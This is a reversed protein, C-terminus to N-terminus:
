NKILKHQSLLKEGQKIVIIYIGSPYSAVNLLLNNSKFALQEARILRGTLDFVTLEVDSDYGSYQVSVEDNTPNPSLIVVADQNVKDFTVTPRMQTTDELCSPIFLMFDFLCVRGQEDTATILFDVAGGQYNGLPVITFTYTTVGQTITFAAPTIIMNPQASLVANLTQTSNIELQIVYSCFKNEERTIDRKEVEFRCKDCELETFTFPETTWDCGGNTMSFAYEGTGEIQFPLPVTDNGDSMILNNRIWAWYELYVRPGILTGQDEKCDRYCGEPFIWAYVEPHKPVDIQASSSCSGVQATVKYPGGFSVLIPNGTQGNSWQLHDAPISTTATLQYQYPDCSVLESEITLDYPSALVETTISVSKQCGNLEVTATITQIGLNLNSFLPTFQNNMQPQLIGNVQWSISPANSYATVLLPIGQCITAEAVLSLSPKPKFIPIIRNPTNYECNNESKVKVWYFGNNSVTISPTNAAGVIPEFGKMWIYETIACNDPQSPNPQYSVVISEGSCVSASQPQAVVTGFFCPEPVTFTTTLVQTCGFRNTITVTVTKPGPTEFVRSPNRLSSTAGDGFDWFFNDTQSFQFFDFGVATDHCDPNQTFFVSMTPMVALSVNISVSCAPQTVGYYDGQVVLTFTYNGGALNALTNGTILQNNSEPSGLPRYYYWVQRNDVLSYYNTEDIFTITFSSNGNCTAEYLLKPIYPVVVDLREEFKAPSLTADNQCEYTAWYFINYLGATAQFSANPYNSSNINPGIVKFGDQLPPQNTSGVLHIIGCDNYSTNTLIPSPAYECEAPLGCGQFISLQNSIASCGQANTVKVTYYGFGLSTYAILSNGNENPILNGNHYWEITLGSTSTSITFETNIENATCFTNEGSSISLGIPPQPYVTLEFLATNTVGGCGLPDTISATIFRTIPANNTNSIQFLQNIGGTISNNGNNWTVVANSPIAVGNISQVSLMVPTGSCVTAQGTIEIIPNPQITVTFTFQQLPLTCKQITLIVDVTTASAVNNWLVTSSNTGQGSSISGVIPNSITWYYTDGESYLDNSGIQYAFFNQYSNSCKITINNESRVEAPITILNISVTTAPSACEIPVISKKVVSISHPGTASFSVNIQTGTNSGLITGNQISWEYIYNGGPNTISYTYPANPCVIRDGIIENANIATPQELVTITKQHGNCSNNGNTSLIYSGAVNFTYNFYQSNNLTFILMNNNDYLSWNTQNEGSSSYNFSSNVCLFDPGTIEFIPIVHITFLAIGTCGTLTNVYTAKLLLDQYVLPQVIVENRQDTLIVEALSDNDNGVVEWQFDTTPWQPLVYRGQAKICLSSPGVIDGEMEIVPVKITTPVYCNLRCDQPNFTVYGFGTNNVQDWIVTVDGNTPNVNQITGGLVSWNYNGNCAQRGDFPLSYTATQGECVISPCIIDFGKPGVRIRVGFTDSCNCANVVILKVDYTGEDLYVHSPNEAFSWNGDGFDWYYSVLGAGGNTQSQNTFFITQNTCADISDGEENYNPVVSFHAIPSIIKEFCITKTTVTSGNTIIFTLSGMGSSGWEVNCSNIQSNLITGGVVSWEVTSTLPVNFLNFNVTSNECIRFCTTDEIDELFVPEKEDRPPVGEQYIQCGVSGDWQISIATNNQAFNAQTTILFCFGLM